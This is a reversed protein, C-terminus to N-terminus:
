HPPCGGSTIRCGPWDYRLAILPDIRTASRAPLVCALLRVVLVIAVGAGAFAEAACGQPPQAIVRNRGPHLLGGAGLAPGIAITAGIALALVSASGIVLARLLRRKQASGV